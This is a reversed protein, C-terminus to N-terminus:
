MGVLVDSDHSDARARDIGGHEAIGCVDPLSVLRAVLHHRAPARHVRETPDARGFVDGLEDTEEGAVAGGEDGATLVFDIPTEEARDGGHERVSIRIIGFIGAPYRSLLNPSFAALLRM